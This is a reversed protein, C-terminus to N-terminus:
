LLKGINIILNKIINVVIVFFVCIGKEEYNGVVIVVGVGM